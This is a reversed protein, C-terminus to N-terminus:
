EKRMIFTGYGLHRRNAEVLKRYQGIVPLAGSQMGATFLKIMGDQYFMNKLNELPGPFSRRWARVPTFGASALVEEWERYGPVHYVGCLQQLQRRASEPLSKQAFLEVVVIIGNKKLVRRCEKLVEKPPLFLLVSEILVLDAVDNLFPMDRADGQVFHVEVGEQRARDAAKALMAPSYDLAFVHAGTTKAIHCATRGTGCGVEIVIDEPSISLNNLVALTHAFGGPHSSGLGIAAIADLYPNM